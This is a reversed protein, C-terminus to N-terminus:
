KFSSSTLTGADPGQVITWNPAYVVGEPTVSKFNKAGPSGPKYGSFKAGPNEVGIMVVYKDSPKDYQILFVEGNKLSRIDRFVRKDTVYKTKAQHVKTVPNGLSEIAKKNSTAWGLTVGDGTFSTPATYEEEERRVVLIRLLVVVLVVLAFAFVRKMM